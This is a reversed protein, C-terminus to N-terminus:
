REVEYFALHLSLFVAGCKIPQQAVATLADIRRLWVPPNGAALRGSLTKKVEGMDEPKQALYSFSRAFDPTENVVLHTIGRARLNRRISEEDTSSM